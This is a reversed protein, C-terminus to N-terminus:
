IGGYWSYGIAPKPKAAGPNQRPVSPPWVEFLPTVAARAAVSLHNLAWLEGRKMKTVFVHHKHQFALGPHPVSELAREARVAKQTPRKKTANESKNTRPM